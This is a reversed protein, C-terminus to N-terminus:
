LGGQLDSLVSLKTPTLIPLDVDIYTIPMKPNVTIEVGAEILRDINTASGCVALCDLKSVQIRNQYSPRM